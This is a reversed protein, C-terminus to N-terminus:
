ETQVREIGHIDVRSVDVAITDGPSVRELTEQYTIHDPTQEPFEISVTGAGVDLVVVTQSGDDSISEIRGRFTHDSYGDPDSQNPIIGSTTDCGSDVGTPIFPTIDLRCQEGILSPSALRDPDFLGIQAGDINVVVRYEYVTDQYETEPVVDIIEGIVPM